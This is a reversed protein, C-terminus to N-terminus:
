RSERRLVAWDEARYDDEIESDLEYDWLPAGLDTHHLPASCERLSHCFVVVEGTTVAREMTREVARRM